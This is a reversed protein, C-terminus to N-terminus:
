PVETFAVPSFFVDTALFVKIHSVPAAKPIFCQGCSPPAGALITLSAATKPAVLFPPLGGWWGWTTSAGSVRTMVAGLGCYGQPVGKCVTAYIGFAPAEALPIVLEPRAAESGPQGNFFYLWEPHDTRNAFSLTGVVFIDGPGAQVPLSQGVVAFKSSSAATLGRRELSVQFQAGNIAMTIPTGTPAGSEITIPARTPPALEAIPTTSSRTGSSSATSGNCSVAGFALALGVMGALSRWNKSRTSLARQGPVGVRERCSGTHDMVTARAPLRANRHFDMRALRVM